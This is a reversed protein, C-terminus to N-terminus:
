AVEELAGRAVRGGGQQHAWLEAYKGCATLLEDHTGQEVIRGKDLVVISDARRITSLRHAIVLATRGKLLMALRQQIEQETKSDLHSTAEDLILLDPRRLAARAIALRQRQGGSLTTGREGLRTEYREPLQDVFRDIGALRAAERVERFSAGPRGLAINERVSGGFLSPDQQVWGIRSRYSALRLDRLDVGDITIRGRTPAYFGALLKCLTSKGCGSEGVIAVTRGKPLVLDIDHLVEDRCGYQFGVGEFRIAEQIGDLEERGHRSAEAPIDLLNGLRDVAILADQIQSGIGVLREIPGLFFSVLGSFLLLNGLTMEGGLVRTAGSWLVFLTVAGGLFMRSANLSLQVLQVRYSQGLSRLLLSETGEFRQDEVGFAKVAEIGTLDEVVRTQFEANTEMGARQVRALAPAHFAFLVLFLPALSLVVFGMTASALFLALGAAVVFVVDLVLSVAAGGLVDRIRGTDHLRALFDGVGHSELASVPLGLLHRLFQRQLAFDLRRGIWALLWGRFAEFVVRSVLLLAMGAGIWHLLGGSRQGPLSDVLWQVFFAGALGLLTAFVGALATQGLLARHPRFMRWLRGVPSVPRPEDEPIDGPVLLLLHGTWRAAFEEMSSHVIGDSPDACTVRRGNARHLVVYHGGNRTTVHAVAPLPLAPLAEIPARVARADFGLREAAGALAALSAGHIDTGTLERLREFAVPRGYHQCVTALVAAGCDSQSHQRVCVLRM